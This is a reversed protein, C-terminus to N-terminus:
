GRESVVTNARDNIISITEDLTKQDAYYAQINENTQAIIDQANLTFASEKVPFPLLWVYVSM